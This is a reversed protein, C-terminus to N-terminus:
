SKEPNIIANVYMKIETIRNEIFIDFEEKNYNVTKMIIPKALFPFVCMGMLSVMFQIPDIELVKGKKNDSIYKEILKRNLAIPLKELFDIRNQNNITTLIFLPLFPNKVLLAIYNDIFINIIEQFSAEETILEEMQPFFFSVNKDFIHEFLKDKSRFYYHLMAKNIGAFDAIDQMRSGGFGDRLFIVEAAKLIKDETSETIEPM